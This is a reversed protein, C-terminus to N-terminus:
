SQLNLYFIKSGWGLLELNLCFNLQIKFGPSPIWCGRISDQIKFGPSPIWSSRNSDQIKSRPSPIWSSRNSDQIKFGLSPIWSTRISDQDQTGTSQLNPLCHIQKASKKMLLSIMFVVGLVVFTQKFCTWFQSDFGCRWCTDVVMCNGNFNSCPLDIPPVIYM